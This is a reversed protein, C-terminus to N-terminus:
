ERGSLGSQIRRSTYSIALFQGVRFQEGVGNPGVAMRSGKPVNAGSKPLRRNAACLSWVVTWLRNRRAVTLLM